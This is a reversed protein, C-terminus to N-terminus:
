LGNRWDLFYREALCRAVKPIAGQVEESLGPSVMDPIHAPQTSFISVKVGCGDKLERLLNSTPFHHMSFDDIKSNPLDDIGVEFVDGPVKGLDFSDVIVVEQPKQPSLVINFLIERVGTGCDEVGVDLPVDYNRVLYECVKPGFGDDGFLVNGCGLILIRKKYIDPVHTDFKKEM